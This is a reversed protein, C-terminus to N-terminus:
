KVADRIVKFHVYAILRLDQGASWTETHLTEVRKLERGPFFEGYAILFENTLPGGIKFDEGGHITILLASSDKLVGPEGPIDNLYSFDIAASDLMNALVDRVAWAFDGDAELVVERQEKQYFIFFLIATVFILFISRYIGPKLTKKQWVKPLGM